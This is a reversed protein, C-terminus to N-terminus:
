VLEFEEVENHDVIEKAEGHMLGHVYCPGVFRYRGNRRLRLICPTTVGHIIVLKDGKRSLVPCLGMAGHQRSTFLRRGWAAMVHMQMFNMAENMERVPHQGYASIAKSFENTAAALWAKCWLGYSRKLYALYELDVISCGATITYLYAEHRKEENNYLKAFKM